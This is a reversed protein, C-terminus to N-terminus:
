SPLRPSRRAFTPAERQALREREQEVQIAKQQQKKKDEREAKDGRQLKYKETYGDRWRRTRLVKGHEKSCCPQDIRGAWFIKRCIPCERIRSVEVGEIARLLPARDVQLLGKETTSVSIVGELYAGVALGESALKTKDCRALARLVDRVSALHRCRRYAEIPPHREFDVDGMFERFRPFTVALDKICTAVYNWQEVTVEGVPVTPPLLVPVDAEPPLINALDLYERFLEPIPRLRSAQPRGSPSINQVTMNSVVRDHRLM